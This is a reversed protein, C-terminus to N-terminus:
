AGEPTNLQQGWLELPDQTVTKPKRWKTHKQSLPSPPALVAIFHKGITALVPATDTKGPFIVLPDLDPNNARTAAQALRELQEANLRARHGIIRTSLEKRFRPELDPFGTPPITDFVWSSSRVAGRCEVVLSSSTTVVMSITSTEDMALITAADRAPLLVDFPALVDPTEKRCQAFQMASVGEAVILNGATRVRVGAIQQPGHEDGVFPLVPELLTRLQHHSITLESM